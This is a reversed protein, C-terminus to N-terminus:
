KRMEGSNREGIEVPLGHACWETFGGGYVYLNEKPVHLVDRLTLATQISDDCQDGGHCYVLVQQAVECAPGVVELYKDRYIDYFEFAGPIHGQKYDPEDRADIFLILQGERRPDNFLRSVLNSDAPQLNLSRIKAALLEAPSNTGGAPAKLSLNTRGAEAQLWLRFYDQDLKLGCPSVANAVLAVVAGTAAVALGEFLTKKVHGSLVPHAPLPSSGASGAPLSKSV